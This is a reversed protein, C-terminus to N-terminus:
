GDRQPRRPRPGAPPAPRGLGPRRRPPRLLLLACLAGASAWALPAIAIDWGPAWRLAGAWPTELLLKAALGALLLAGIAQRRGAENLVLQLAAVVVAAHLVGSLGAYHLLQPQALLGLQTLPWALAWALAARPGCGAVVGLAAVLLTGLLNAGLHLPSLHVWAATVARWPQTAALAPQWDLASATTPWGANAETPWTAATAAAAAPQGPLAPL